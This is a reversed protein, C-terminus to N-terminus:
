DQTSAVRGQADLPTSASELSCGFSIRYPGSAVPAVESPPAALPVPLGTGPAAGEGSVALAPLPPELSLMAADPVPSAGSPADVLPM